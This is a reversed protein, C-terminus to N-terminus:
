QTPLSAPEPPEAVLSPDVYEVIHAISIPAPQEYRPSRYKAGRYTLLAFGTAAPPTKLQRFQVKTGRYIGVEEHPITAQGSVQSQYRVGRYILQM